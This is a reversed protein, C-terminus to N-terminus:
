LNLGLSLNVRNSDAGTAKACFCRGYEFRANFLKGNLPLAFTLGAGLAEASASRASMNRRERWGFGLGSFAYPTLIASTSGHRLTVAHSLENRLTGGSDVEFGGPLTTSIADPAALSIKESLFLPRGFSSQGRATITLHTTRDLRTRLTIRGDLKTYDNRADTQSFPVAGQAPQTRGGVGQSFHLDSAIFGGSAFRRWAQAGLRLTVYNDHNLGLSFFPLSTRQAILDGGITLAISRSHSVVPLFTLLLSGRSFAGLSDLFSQAAAQHTRARLYSAAFTAGDHGLPLNLTAGVTAYPSATWGLKGLQDTQGVILNVQEGQGALNNLTIGATLTNGGLTAPLSNEWGLSLAM